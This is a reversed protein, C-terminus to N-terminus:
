LRFDFWWTLNLKDLDTICEILLCIESQFGSAKMKTEVKEQARLPTWKEVGAHASSFFLHLFTGSM